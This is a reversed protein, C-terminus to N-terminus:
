LGAHPHLDRSDWPIQLFKAPISALTARNGCPHFATRGDVFLKESKL